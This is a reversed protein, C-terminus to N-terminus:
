THFVWGRAASFNFLLGAAAGFALALVPMAHLDDFLGLVTFYVLLNLLAGIVQIVTYKGLAWLPSTFLRGRFTWARNLLFTATVAVPFSLARGEFPSWGAGSVLLHLLVAEIAFGTAGVLAFRALQARVPM